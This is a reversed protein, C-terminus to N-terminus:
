DFVGQIEELTPMAAPVVAFECDLAGLVRAYALMGVSPDGKEIAIVKQRTVGALTALNAQTLGRNLRRKRVQEGLRVIILSYDM